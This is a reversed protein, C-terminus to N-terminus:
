VREHRVEPPVGAEGPIQIIVITYVYRIVIICVYNCYHM